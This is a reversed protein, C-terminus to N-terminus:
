QQWDSLSTQSFAYSADIPQNDRWLAFHLHKGTAWGTSGQIGVIDGVSVPDGVKLSPMSTLHCYESSLGDPHSIIVQYGCGIQVNAPKDVAYWCIGVGNDCFKWRRTTGILMNSNIASVTGSSFARVETQRSPTDAIDWAIHKLGDKSEDM